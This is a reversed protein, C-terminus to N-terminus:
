PAKGGQSDGLGAPRILAPQLQLSPDGPPDWASVRLKDTNVQGLFFDRSTFLMKTTAAAVRNPKLRLAPEKSIIMSPLNSTPTLAPILLPTMPAPPEEQRETGKKGQIRGHM